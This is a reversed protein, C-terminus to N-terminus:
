EFNMQAEQFDPLKQDKDSVIMEEAPLQWNINLTKDQFNIGAESGPNYFHDCKYTFIASPSLVAFGHAFGRPILLQKKNEDTLLEGHWLGFSPSGKRLDVAVDYVKGEIVRVLKAQAYPALQYHLGRVVGYVSKSENDQVFNYDLGAEKYTNANYSEFFYGRQDEFVRPQIVLLDQLPTHIIEM